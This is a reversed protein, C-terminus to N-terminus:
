RYGSYILGPFSVKRVVLKFAPVHNFKPTKEKWIEDKLISFFKTESIKVTFILSPEDGLVLCNLELIYKFEVTPDQCPSLAVHTVTVSGSEILRGLLQFKFFVDHHETLMTVWLM